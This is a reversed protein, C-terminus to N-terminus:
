SSVLRYQHMPNTHEAVTNHKKKDFDM